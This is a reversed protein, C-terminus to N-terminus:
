ARRGILSTILAHWVLEGRQNRLEGRLVVIGRDPKSGSPRTGEVVAARGSLTDGAYVPQLWRMEDVGAGGLNVADGMVTDTVLRSFTAFTHLGSAVLGGFSSRAAAEPDVHFPQPDFESGFRVIDDATLTKSGVDFTTGVTFDEFYLTM